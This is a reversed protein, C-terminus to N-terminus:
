VVYLLVLIVANYSYSYHPIPLFPFFTTSSIWYTGLDLNSYFVYRTGSTKDLPLICVYNLLTWMYQYNQLIHGKM